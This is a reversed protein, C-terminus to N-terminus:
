LLHHARHRANFVLVETKDNNLKFKKTTMWQTIYQVSIEIRSKSNALKVPVHPKFSMYIQGDDAYFHFIIGHCRIIDGLPTTHM